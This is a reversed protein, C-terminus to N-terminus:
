RLLIPIIFGCSRGAEICSNCIVVMAIIFLIMLIVYLIIMAIYVWMLVKAFVSQPYKVRAIIMLIIGTIQFTGTMGFFLSYYSSILDSLQDTTTFISIMFGTVDAILPLAFLIASVVCLINCTQKDQENM